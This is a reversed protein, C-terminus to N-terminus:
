VAEGQAIYNLAQASVGLGPLWIPASVGTEQLTVADLFWVAAGTRSLYQEAKFRLYSQASTAVFAPVSWEEWGGSAGEVNRTALDTWDSGNASWKVTVQSSFPSDSDLIGPVAWLNPTYTRGAVTTVTWTVQSYQYIFGIPVIEDYTTHLFACWTGEYVGVAPHALTLWSWADGDYTRGAYTDEQTEFTPPPDASELGGNLATLIEQDINSGPILLGADPL